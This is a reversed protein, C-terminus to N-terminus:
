ARHSMPQTFMYANIAILLCILFLHPVLARVTRAQGARRAIRYAAYVTAVAGTGLMMYQLVQITPTNLLADNTRVWSLGFLEALTRPVATGEGFLHFLNHGMDMVSGDPMTMQGGTSAAAPTTPAGDQPKAADGSMDM